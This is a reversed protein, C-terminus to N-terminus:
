EVVIDSVNMTVDAAAVALLSENLSMSGDTEAVMYVSGGTNESSRKLIMIVEGLQLKSGSGVDSRFVYTARSRGKRVSM